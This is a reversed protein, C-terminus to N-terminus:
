EFYSAPIFSELGMDTLVREKAIEIDVDNLGGVILDVDHDCLTFNENKSSISKRTCSLCKQAKNSSCIYISNKMTIINILLMYM